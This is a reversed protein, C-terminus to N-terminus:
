LKERELRLKMRLRTREQRQRQRDETTMLQWLRVGTDNNELLRDDIVRLLLLQEKETFLDKLRELLLMDPLLRNQVLFKLTTAVSTVEKPSFESMSRILEKYSNNYDALSRRIVDLFVVLAIEEDLQHGELNFQKRQQDKIVILQKLEKTTFLFSFAHIMRSSPFYNLRKKTKYEAIITKAIEPELNTNDLLVDILKKTNSKQEEVRNFFLM